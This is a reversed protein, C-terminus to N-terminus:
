RLASGETPTRDTGSRCALLTKDLLRRAVEGKSRYGGRTCVTPCPLTPDICGPRPGWEDCAFAEDRTVEYTVSYSCEAPVAAGPVLTTESTVEKAVATTRREDQPEAVCASTLALALVAAISVPRM